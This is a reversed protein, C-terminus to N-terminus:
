KLKSIKHYLMDITDEELLVPNNKLRTPNVSKKLVDFDSESKIEPAKLDLQKVINQFKAAADLPSKERMSEAIEVFVSGLYKEGRSDICKETNEIMYPWLVSVCLAAAHGHAIGYLSTLKYCM